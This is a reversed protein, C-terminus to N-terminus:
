GWFDRARSAVCDSGSITDAADASVSDADGRVSDSEGYRALPRPSESSARGDACDDDVAAFDDAGTAPVPKLPASGVAGYTDFSGGAPSRTGGSSWVSRTSRSADVGIVSDAVGVTSDPSATRLENVGHESDDVGGGSDAM